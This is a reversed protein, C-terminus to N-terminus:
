DPISKTVTKLLREGTDIYKQIDAHPGYCPAELGREIYTKVTKRGCAAKRAIASISLGQQHLDNIV